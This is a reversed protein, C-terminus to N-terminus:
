GISRLDVTFILTENPGIVGGAGAAGYGLNPPITITRRGGVKMGAVGQDWGSIVQGAGITFSLPQGRNWSADFEAGTSWSVGVYDVNAQVGAIAEGGDGVVHDEIHLESPADGEPVTITPRESTDM